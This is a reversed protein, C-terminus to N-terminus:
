QFIQKNFVKEGNDRVFKASYSRNCKSYFSNPCRYALWPNLEMRDVPVVITCGCECGMVYLGKREQIPTNENVKM